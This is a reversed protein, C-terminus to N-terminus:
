MNESEECGQGHCDNKCNCKQCNNNLPINDANRRQFALEAEECGQGACHTSCNCYNKRCTM